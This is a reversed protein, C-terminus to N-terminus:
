SRRPFHNVLTIRSAAFSWLIGACWVGWAAIAAATPPAQERVQVVAGEIKYVAIDKGVFVPTGGVIEAGSDVVVYRIGQAALAQASFGARNVAEARPDEAALRTSGVVVGDNWVVRRALYRPLPDLVRRGGNWDYSRYAAWPLLLVAGPQPDRDILREAAAWDAPYHVAQLRGGAGWALAPLLAIPVAIGLVAAERFRIRDLAVGLGVATLVALPAVFQQGDRLVALVPVAGMASKLLGPTLVGLAALGFGAGAAVGLRRAWDTRCFLAYASIAAVVVVLWAAATLAAGYGPPVTERNWVGGLLLLSGLAGFPTDSRAAFADV